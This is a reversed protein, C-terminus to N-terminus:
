SDEINPLDETPNLIIEVILVDLGDVIIDAESLLHASNTTTVAICHMNSNKAASVSAIADEIVICNM